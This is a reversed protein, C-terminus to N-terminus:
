KKYNKELFEWTSKISYCIPNGDKDWASARNNNDQVESKKNIKSKEKGYDNEYCFWTYLDYGDEGYIEEILVKQIVYFDDLFNIIEIGAKYALDNKADIKKQTEIIKKFKQYEM